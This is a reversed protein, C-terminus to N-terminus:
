PVSKLLKAAKASLLDLFRGIRVYSDLELEENQSLRGQQNKVALEHMKKRDEESFGLDLLARAAEPPLTLKSGQIVRSLIAAESSTPTQTKPM